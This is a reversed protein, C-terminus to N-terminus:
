ALAETPESGLSPPRREIAAVQYARVAWYEDIKVLTFDWDQFDLWWALDEYIAMKDRSCDNGVVVEYAVVEKAEHNVAYADPIIRYPFREYPAISRVAPRFGKRRVEPRRACLDRIIQEHRSSHEKRTKKKGSDDRVNASKGM